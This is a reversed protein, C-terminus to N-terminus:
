YSKITEFSDVDILSHSLQSNLFETLVLANSLPCRVQLSQGLRFNGEFWGRRGPIKRPISADGFCHKREGTGKFEVLFRSGPLFVVVSLYGKTIQSM